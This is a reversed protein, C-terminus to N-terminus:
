KPTEPNASRAVKAYQQIKALAKGHVSDAPYQGNRNPKGPEADLMTKIAEDITAVAVVHFLCKKVAELVEEKLMLHQVNQVPIVVGHTGDLGREKCIAFFGEIKKNVQGITEANGHQDMSGTIAWGQKIPVDSLSSLIAIMEALSASPGDVGEYAEEFAVRATLALPNTQAFKGELYGQITSISKELMKGALKSEKEVSVIGAKGISTVATIRLPFGFAYGSPLQRVVLGNIQGVAKGDTKILQTNNLIRERVRDSFLGAREEEAQLAALVHKRTVKKSKERHACSGAETIVRQILGFQASIKKISSGRKVGEEVIRAVARNDFPPLQKEHQIMAVFLAYGAVADETRPMESDFPAQIEFLEKFDPDKEMLLYYIMPDGVLVVKCRFPILEPKLGTDVRNIGLEDIKDRIAISRTKITRKLAEWVTWDRLVDLANLVIFGGNAEHLSGRQIMTHDTIFQGMFFRSSVKGFLNPYTPHSELVVPLKSADPEYFVNIRFPIYPDGARPANGGAPDQYNSQLLMYEYQAFNTFNEAAYKALGELYIIVRQHSPNEDAPANKKKWEDTFEKLPACAEKILEDRVEQAKKQMEEIHARRLEETRQSVARLEPPLNNVGQDTKADVPFIVPGFQPHTQFQFRIGFPLAEVNIEDIKKMLGEEEKQVIAQFRIHLVEGFSKIKAHLERFLADVKDKFANAEGSRFRIAPPQDPNGFNYVYTWGYVRKLSSGARPALGQLKQKILTMKGTGNLGTVFINAYPNLGIDLSLGYEFARDAREQGIIAHLPPLAGTDKFHLMRSPCTWRLQSTRLEKPSVLRNRSATM